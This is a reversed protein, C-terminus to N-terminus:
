RHETSHLLMILNGNSNLLVPTRNRISITIDLLHLWEGCLEGWIFLEVMTFYANVWHFLRSKACFLCQVHYVNLPAPLARQSYLNILLFMFKQKALLIPFKVWCFYNIVEAIKATGGNSLSFKSFRNM